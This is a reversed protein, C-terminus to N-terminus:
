GKAATITVICKQFGSDKSLPLEFKMSKPVKFFKKQGISYGNDRVESKLEKVAWLSLSCHLDGQKPYVVGAISGVTYGSKLPAQDLFFHFDERFDVTRHWKYLLETKGDQYGPREFLLEVKYRSAFQAHALGSLSLLLLLTYFLKNM